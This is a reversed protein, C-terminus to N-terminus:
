GEVAHLGSPGHGRAGDQAHTRRKVEYMATDARTLVAEADAEGAVTVSAGVSASLALRQRDFVVGGRISDTFRDVLAATDFPGEGRRCLVVFEDGGVRGILDGGRVARRIRAAAVRLLEDGASHGLDDNVTKLHDLDIYVVAVEEGAALAEELAAVIAARNLCGSLADHSARHELESRLRSRETVDSACVIVGDVSGNDSTMARFTLECRREDLDHVVDVELHGPRGELAQDLAVEVARRDNEGVSDVLAELTDVPGLLAVLLENSYIVARDARVHCIGIPLADALRGLLRERDRMAEFDAMQDSIDVLESVVCGFEPDELRNDNTVEVWVYHGDAHRHRVQLRTTGAGSRMEMWSEIARETDEPHIFDITRRGILDEPEWGLVAKAGADVNLIVAVADREIHAVRSPREGASEMWVRLGEPDRAVVVIVHIGHDARVDFFHVSATHEPDALLHVEIPVISETAARTWADIVLLQDAAVVMEIGSRGMGGFGANGAIPLSEPVPVLSGDPGLAAVVANPNEEVWAAMARETMGPNM